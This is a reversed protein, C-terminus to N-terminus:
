LLLSSSRVLKTNSYVLMERKPSSERWDDLGKKQEYM